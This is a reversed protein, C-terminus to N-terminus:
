VEGLYLDRLEAARARLGEAIYQRSIRFPQGTRSMGVLLLQSHLDRTDHHIVGVWRLPVGLDQQVMLMWGQIYEQMPLNPATEPGPSIIIEFNYPARWAEALFTQLDVAEGEPGFYEAADGDEGKGEKGLYGVYAALRRYYEQPTFDAKALFQVKVVPGNVARYQPEIFVGTGLTRMAIEGCDDQHDLLDLQSSWAIAAV